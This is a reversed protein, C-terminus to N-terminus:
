PWCKMAAVTDKPPKSPSATYGIVTAGRRGMSRRAIFNQSYSAHVGNAYLLMASGADQNEIGKSFACWHDGTGMGGDDGRIAINKPSEPCTDTINCESCRLNEPMNGGYVLRSSTAAVMMPPSDVLQNICDFDHTAKQLWLGRCDSYSRYWNGFYVGGYPVNNIAQVQNIKGLRGSRIVEMAASFLPTVRLPFSVVVSDERGSFARHLDALQQRDIAVPKELYIPLKTQAALIAIPTHTDDRTAIMLGDYESSKELLAEASTYWNVQDVSQDLLKLREAAAAQDSDAVAVIKVEPAIKCIIRLVGAARGGLGIVAIRIM